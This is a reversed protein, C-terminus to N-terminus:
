RGVSVSPAITLGARRLNEILLDRPESTPFFSAIAPAAFRGIEPVLRVLIEVSRAALTREGLEGYAAAKLIHVWFIHQEPIGELIEVAAMYDGSKLRSVVHGTAELFSANAPGLNGARPAGEDVALAALLRADSAASGSPGSGLIAEALRAAQGTSGARLLAYGLALQATFDFPDHAVASYALELNETPGTRLTGDGFYADVRHMDALLGLHTAQGSGDANLSKLGGLATAVLSTDQTGVFRWAMMLKALASQPRRSALTAPVVGVIPDAIEVTIRDSIDDVLKLIGGDTKGVDMQCHKLVRNEPVSCISFHIRITGGAHFAQGLVVIDASNARARDLATQSEMAPLDVVTIWNARVLPYKHAVYLASALVLEAVDKAVRDNSRFETIMVVPSEAAPVSAMPASPDVTTLEPRYSGKPIRLRERLPETCRAYFLELTNRLRGMEIRVHADSNPDFTDDFGLVSLAIETQTIRQSGDDEARAVVYRLLAKLRDSANFGSHRCVWDAHLALATAEPVQGDDGQKRM